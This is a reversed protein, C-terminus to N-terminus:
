PRGGTLRDLMALAVAQAVQAQCFERTTQFAVRQADLLELLSLEGVQYSKQAIAAAEEAQRLLGHRFLDVQGSAMRFQEFAQTLAKTLELRAQQAEAEARRVGAAAEAIEGQRQSWLPLPVSLGVRYSERDIEREASGFLSLDPVRSSRASELLATRQAETRESARIMPHQRLARELLTELSPEARSDPFEGQADFDRGLDQGVAAELTSRAQAVRSDAREREKVARQWEVEAKVQEFKPSEGAAVRKRATAALQEVTDLMQAALARERQAGLLDYFASTVNATLRLAADQRVFTQAAIAQEAARIRASRTPMWELPQSVRAGVETGRNPAGELARGPGAGITLEPNPYAQAGLLRGRSAEVDAEGVALAPHRELALALLAALDYRAGSVQSDAGSAQQATWLWLSASVIVIMLQM